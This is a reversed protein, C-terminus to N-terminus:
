GGDSDPPTPYSCAMCRQNLRRQTERINPCNRIGCETFIEQRHGCLYTVTENTCM